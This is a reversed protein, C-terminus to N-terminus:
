NLFFDIGIEGIGGRQRLSYIKKEQGVCPSSSARREAESKWGEVTRQLSLTM